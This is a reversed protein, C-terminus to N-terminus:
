GVSSCYSVADVPTSSAQPCTASFAPSPHPIHCTSIRPPLEQPQLVSPGSDSIRRFHTVSHDFVRGLVGNKDPISTSAICFETNKNSRKTSLVDDEHAVDLPFCMTNM